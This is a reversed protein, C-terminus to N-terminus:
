YEQLVTRGTFQERIMSIKVSFFFMPKAAFAKLVIGIFREQVRDEVFCPQIIQEVAASGIGGM